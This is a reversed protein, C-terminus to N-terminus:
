RPRVGAYMIDSTSRRLCIRTLSNLLNGLLGSATLAPIQLFIDQWCFKYKRLQTTHIIVFSEGTEKLNCYIKLPTGRGLSSAQVYRFAYISNFSITCNMSWVIGLIKSYILIIILNPLLSIPGCSPTKRMWAMPFIPYSCNRGQLSHPLLLLTSLAPQTPSNGRGWVERRWGKQEGGVGMKRVAQNWEAQIPINAICPVIFAFLTEVEWINNALELLIYFLM